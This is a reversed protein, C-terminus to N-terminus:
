DRVGFWEELEGFHAIALTIGVLILGALFRWSSGRLKRKCAAVRGCESNGQVLDEIPFRNLTDESLYGSVLDLYRRSVEPKERHVSLWGEVFGKRRDAQQFWYVAGSPAHPFMSILAGAFNGYDSVNMFKTIPKLVKSVHEDRHSHLNSHIRHHFRCYYDSSVIINVRKARLLLHAAAVSVAASSQDPNLIEDIFLHFIDAYSLGVNEAICRGIFWTLVPGIPADRAVIAEHEFQLIDLTIRSKLEPIMVDLLFLIGHGDPRKSALRKAADCILMRINLNHNKAETIILDCFERDKKKEFCNLRLTLKEDYEEPSLDDYDQYKESFALRAKAHMKLSGEILDLLRPLSGEVKSLGNQFIEASTLAPRRVHSVVPVEQESSKPVTLEEASEDSYDEHLSAFTNEPKLSM